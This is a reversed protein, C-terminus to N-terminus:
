LIKAQKRYETPTFGCNSKFLRSFYLQNQYGVMEAIEGITYSSSALLEKAKNLRVDTLYQIPSLGMERHFIRTFWCPSIHCQAAYEELCFPENFLTHFRKVAASVQENHPSADTIGELTRRSMLILLEYFYANCLESHHRRKLQLEQIIHDFLVAYGHKIDIEFMKQPALGLNFLIDSVDTGTFHLWYIDPSDCLDYSYRQSELPYYIVIHGQPVSITQGNVSFRAKGNAVYLLQYDRRGGPRFTEFHKKRILKYHGCSTVTLPHSDDPTDIESNSYFSGSINQM